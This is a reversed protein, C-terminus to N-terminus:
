RRRRAGLVILVVGVIALIVGIIGTLVVTAVLGMYPLALSLGGLTRARYRPSFLEAIRPAAEPRKFVEPEHVRLRILVAVVAPVLGTLFVARWSLGPDSAIGHWKRTFLDNVFTALFLGAPASTYLLAGGMVRKSFPLSEAVLAAGAAWEGGIGFGAIAQLIALQVWSQALGSLGTFVAYIVITIVMTAPVVTM